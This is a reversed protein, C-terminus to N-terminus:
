KRVEATLRSYFAFLHFLGTGFFVNKFTSVNPIIFDIRIFHGTIKLYTEFEREWRDPVTQYRLNLHFGVISCFGHIEGLLEVVVDEDRSSRPQVFCTDNNLFVVREVRIFKRFVNVNKATKRQVNM